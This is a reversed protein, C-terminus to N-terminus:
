SSQKPKSAETKAEDEIEKSFAQIKLENVNARVYEQIFQDLTELKDKRNFANEIVRQMKFWDCLGAYMKPYFVLVGKHDGNVKDNRKIQIKDLAEKPIDISLGDPTTWKGSLISRQANIIGTKLGNMLYESLGGEFKIDLLHDAVLASDEQTIGYFLKEM